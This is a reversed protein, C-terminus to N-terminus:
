YYPYYVHSPSKISYESQLFTVMDILEQVTIIDNYIMMKSQGEEDAVEMQHVKSIRHSPNIISTVLEGYTKISSVEGGLPVHLEDKNGLWEIDGVSHCENCRLMTFNFKGAAVDGEPLAFGRSEIDCGSISILCAAFFFFMAYIRYKNFTTGM